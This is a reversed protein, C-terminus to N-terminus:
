KIKSAFEKIREAGKVIDAESIAYSLRVFNPADFGECPVVAVSAHKILLNAFDLASNIVTGEYSKGFTGSVNLMMYFAGQPKNVTIHQVGQLADFLMNRRAEFVQKMNAMFEEGGQLGVCSAYQTISNANSTQHSQLGSMAKAIEATPCAVYGLRWGTMAYAKSMGNVVFTRDYMEKSNQAISYHEMNDYVLKEYIEDSIVWIDPYKKLMEALADMSTKDYIAGTPNNPSNLLIARTNPTIAKEIKDINLLCNDESLDVSVVKAGCFKIMEPYSLWYPALLIVEDGEQVITQFVNFLTQKGGTSVIIQDFNYDLNNEAKFKKCIQERLEKTGPVPTYKTLGKDLAEKAANIIYDPTNFNPEGAAFSVVDIGESKMKNAQATIALTLSPSVNKARDTLKLM